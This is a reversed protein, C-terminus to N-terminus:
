GDRNGFVEAQVTAGFGLRVDVQFVVESVVEHNYGRGLGDTEDVKHESQCGEAARGPDYLFLVIGVDHCGDGMRCNPAM